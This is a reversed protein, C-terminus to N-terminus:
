LGCSQCMEMARLGRTGFEVVRIKGGGSLRCGDCHREEEAALRLERRLLLDRLRFCFDVHDRVHVRPVHWEGRGRAPEVTLQSVGSVKEPPRTQDLGAALLADIGRVAFGVEVLALGNTEVAADCLEELDVDLNAFLHLALGL